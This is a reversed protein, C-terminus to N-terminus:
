GKARSMALEAKAMNEIAKTGEPIQSVIQQQQIAQEVEEDTNMFDFFSRDTREARWEMYKTPNIKMIYKPDVASMEAAVRLLGESQIVQNQYAAKSLPSHITISLDSPKLDVPPRKYYDARYRIWFIRIALPKLHEFENQAVIPALIGQNQNNRIGAEMATMQPLDHPFRFDNVHFGNDVNGALYTGETYAVDMRQRPEIYGVADPQNYVNKAGPVLKPNGSMRGAMQWHPPDVALAAAQLRLKGLAQLSEAEGLVSMAASNPWVSDARTLWRAFGFPKEEYGRFLGNYMNLPYKDDYVFFASIYEMSRKVPVYDKSAPCIYHLIEITEDQENELKYKLKDNKQIAEEFEGIEALQYIPMAYLRILSHVSGDNGEFPFIQHYPFCKFILDGYKDDILDYTEAIHCMSGITTYDPMGEAIKPHFNSDHLVENVDESVETLWRKLSPNKKIVEKNKVSYEIFNQNPPYMMSHLARQFTTNGHVPRSDYIRKDITKSRGRYHKPFCIEEFNPDLTEKVRRWVYEWSSRERRGAELRKFIKNIRKDEM